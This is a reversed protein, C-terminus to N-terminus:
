KVALTVAKQGQVEFRVEAIQGRDVALAFCYDAIDATGIPPVVRQLRCILTKGKLEPPLLTVKNSGSGETDRLLVLAEKTFDIKAKKLGEVFGARNNWGLPGVASEKVLADLQEQSTIIQTKFNGYGHERAPIDLV